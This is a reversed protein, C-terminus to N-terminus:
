ATQVVAGIRESITNLGAFGPLRQIRQSVQKDMLEFGDHGSFLTTITNNADKAPKAGQGVPVWFNSIAFRALKQAITSRKLELQAIHWYFQAHTSEERMVARLITSLVPHDALAILRRYGQLTSLENVAGYAMHAGTFYRGAFNTLTTTIRTSVTYSIPIARRATEIWNDGDDFGAEGLFRNLIEGHVLEETGWREMFKSIIPDKGTPTRKLQEHYIDTLAEVDRMYVLVPIFQAGLTHKRVEDWPISSLFEETLVRPQKEYWTLVDRNTEFM